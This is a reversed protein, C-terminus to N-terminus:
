LQVPGLKVLEDCFGTILIGGVVAVPEYITDAVNLPQVELSVTATTTFWAGALGVTLPLVGTHVPLFILRVADEEVM